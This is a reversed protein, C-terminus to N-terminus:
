SVASKESNLLLANTDYSVQWETDYSVQWESQSLLVLLTILKIYYQIFSKMPSLDNSLLLNPRSQEPYGVKIKLVRVVIM